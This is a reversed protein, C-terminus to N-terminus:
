PSSTPTPIIYLSGYSQIVEERLQGLVEIDISYSNELILEVNTMIQAIEEILPPTEDLVKSSDIEGSIIISIPLLNSTSEHVMLANEWYPLIIEPPVIEPVLNEVVKIMRMTLFTIGLLEDGSLEGTDVRRAIENLINVNTEIYLLVKYTQLIEGRLETPISTVTFTLSPTSTLTPSPTKTPPPTMTFTTSPLPVLTSSPQIIHTSDQITPPSSCAVLVLVIVVIMTKKM